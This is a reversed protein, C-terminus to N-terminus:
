RSGRRPRSPPRGLRCAQEAYTITEGYPVNALASWAQLQFDTGLLDLALHFRTLSGDFYVNLHREAEDLLESPAEIASAM